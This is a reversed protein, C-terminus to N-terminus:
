EQVPAESQEAAEEVFTNVETIGAGKPTRKIKNYFNTMTACMYPTVYIAALGFTLMVLVGWGIFSLELVFLDAKHGHMIAKSENLAERATMNPNDALIYISMSYSLSKIMGPIVFLLSWLITFFAVLIELWLAKGFIDFGKIMDSIQPKTGYNTMNLYIMCLSITYTPVLVFASAISGVIPIMSVLYTAAIYILSIVFLIGINGKIQEKAASKIEERTFM